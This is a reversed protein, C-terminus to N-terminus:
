PSAKALLPVVAGTAHVKDCFEAWATMLRRRKDFLDGRRYAAVVKDGVAHALAAEAVEAPFNTREAAWDRFSSRFGHVTVNQGMRRLQMSMAMGSVRDGRDGPFVYDNERYVQMHEIVALTAASLPVRHERGGKMRDGPVTWLKAALDIEDWRAGLVEGSRAATLIAFSLLARPPLPGSVCSRWSPPLKPIPWPRM